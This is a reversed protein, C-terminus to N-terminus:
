SHNPNIIQYREVHKFKGKRKIWDRQTGIHLFNLKKFLELSHENDSPINAYLQHLDLHGFVFDMFQSLASSAFGKHRFKNLILIGIGARQNLPDYDFLDILGVTMKNKKDSIVLRLQKVEYIDQHANEIYKKLLDRSYPALTNSIDWLDSSNEISFLTDLDDPELARLKIRHNELLSMKFKLLERISM